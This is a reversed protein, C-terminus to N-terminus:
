DKKRKAEGGAWWIDSEKQTRDGKDDLIAERVEVTEQSVVRSNTTESSM